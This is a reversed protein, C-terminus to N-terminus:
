AVLEHRSARYARSFNSFFPSKFVHGRAPPVNQDDECDAVGQAIPHRLDSGHRETFKAHRTASRFFAAATVDGSVSGSRSWSVDGSSISTVARM